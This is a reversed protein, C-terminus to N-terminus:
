QIYEIKEAISRLRRNLVSECNEYEKLSYEIINRLYNIMEVHRIINKDLNGVNDNSFSDPFESIANIASALKSKIISKYSSDFEGLKRLIDRYVDDDYKIRAGGLFSSIDETPEYELTSGNNRFEGCKGCYNGNNDAKGCKPCTWLTSSTLSVNAAEERSMGCKGCYSTTNDKKGCNPCNWTTGNNGLVIVSPTGCGGCFKATNGTRGCKPCTWTEIDMLSDTVADERSSGCGGCYNGTNDTRGCKPCNWKGTSTGLITVSSKGCGGCFKATNGTRGCKPCTWTEIDMLSDTVADERSTACGGCYNGTNDTRGCKPCNWKGTSTGLVTVSPTGCGGCFKATNGTRGCKPCTWTEIDMLSDTIADERSSGCGGCFKATNGTRGCKPCNWLNDNVRSSSERESGCGGCFFGEKNIHGCKFCVWGNNM